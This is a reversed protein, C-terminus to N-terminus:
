TSKDNGIKAYGRGVICPKGQERQERQERQEPKLNCLALMIGMVFIGRSLVLGAAPNIPSIRSCSFTVADWAARSMRIGRLRILSIHAPRFPTEASVANLSSRLRPIEDASNNRSWVSKSKLRAECSFDSCISDSIEGRTNAAEHTKNGM